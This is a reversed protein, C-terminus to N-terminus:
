GENVRERNNKKRSKRKDERKQARNRTDIPSNDGPYSTDNPDEQRSSTDSFTNSLPIM